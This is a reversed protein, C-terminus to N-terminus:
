DSRTPPLLFDDAQADTINTLGEEQSILTCRETLIKMWFKREAETAKEEESQPNYIRSKYAKLYENFTDEEHHEIAAERLEELCEM